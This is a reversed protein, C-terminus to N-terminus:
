RMKWIRYDSETASKKVYMINNHTRRQVTADDLPLYTVARVYICICANETGFKIVRYIHLSLIM